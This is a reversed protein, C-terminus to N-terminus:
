HRFGSQLVPRPFGGAKARVERYEPLYRGAQRMMWLPPVSQRRGSLVEMFPKVIPSRTLCSEM